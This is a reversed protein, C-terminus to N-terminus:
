NLVPVFHDWTSIENFLAEGPCETASVQRHGILQYDPSIYGLEVGVAILEKATELQAAPPLKSVFDGIMCIGISRVNVGVAHAGVADWGRGEYVSGEGGVAFNYGIDVWGNTLQHMNQMARMSRKCSEQTFCDPPIYSHHIVVVPAPTHLQTVLTPPRAGWDDRSVFPFPYAYSTETQYPLAASSAIFCIIAAFVLKAM